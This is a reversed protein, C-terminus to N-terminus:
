RADHSPTRKKRDTEQADLRRLKRLDDDEIPIAQVSRGMRIFLEPKHFLQEFKKEQEPTLSAFSDETLGVVLFDGALIDYTEGNADRLARNLPLGILKGEENCILAVPDDYPYVAEIDGGVADQLSKLGTGIEVRQPHVGPQVLLVTMKDQAAAKQAPERETQRQEYSSALEFTRSEADYHYVHDSLREEPPVEIANIEQVMQELESATIEETDPVLIVEHISSPLVYFNASLTQAAEDLFGPYAIVGAGGVRDVSTAVYLPSEEPVLQGDSLEVMMESMNRLVAPNREAAQQIADAHLQEATVGYRELMENTVPTSAIRGDDAQNLKLRYVVALDEMVQHPMKALNAENGAVPMVRVNLLPKAAEYQSLAELVESREM